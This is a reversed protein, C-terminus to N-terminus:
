LHRRVFLWGARSCVAWHVSWLRPGMRFRVMVNYMWCGVVVMVYGM